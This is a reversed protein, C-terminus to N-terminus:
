FDVRFQVRKQACGQSTNDFDSREYCQHIFEDVIPYFVRSLFVANVIQQLISYIANICSLIM